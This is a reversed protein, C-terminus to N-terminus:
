NKNRGDQRQNLRLILLRYWSFAYPRFQGNRGRIAYWGPCRRKDMEQGKGGSTIRLKISLIVLITGGVKM